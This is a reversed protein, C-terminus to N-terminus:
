KKEEKTHVHIQMISLSMGTIQIRLYQLGSYNPDIQSFTVSGLSFTVNLVVVVVVSSGRNKRSM